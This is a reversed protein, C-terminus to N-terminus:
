SLVEMMLLEENTFKGMKVSISGDRYDTIYGAICYDTNDYIETELEEVLKVEGNEDIENHQVMNEQIISWAVGDVFLSIAEQYTMEVRITKTERNDWDKDNIRGTISAPYKTGNIEIYTAM